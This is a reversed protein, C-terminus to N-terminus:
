RGLEKLIHQSYSMNRIVWLIYDISVVINRTTLPESRYISSASQATRDFNLGILEGKANLVASGSNGASTEANTTFCAVPLSADSELMKRFKASVSDPRHLMDAMTNIDRVRGTSFRLTHNAEYPVARGQMMETKARMYIGYLKQNLRRLPTAERNQKQVRNVYIDVCIRYLSDTALAQTGHEVSGAVLSELRASDTLLSTRYLRDMDVNGRLGEPLYEEPVAKLYLPLLTKMMGCDEAMSISPFFERINRQIEPIEREMDTQRSKRNARDIALLKEFKGAFPIIGAGSGVFQSFAEDMHNFVTLRSYVSDMQDILNSGYKAVRQPDANIWQQLAMDEARKREVLGTNRVGDIEGRSRLYVNMLKGIRVNYGSLVTGETGRSCERLYDIKAKLARARLQTDNNVIKDLAYAPINKRTQGPYGMVMALDGESVSKGAVKLYSQPHFPENMPSYDTPEGDATAYVRLFAFDCSYRPWRWNDDDGGYAGLWMPPCAVIRVDSFTRYRILVYQQGGMLAYAKRTIGYPEKTNDMLKRAREDALRDREDAGMAETGELVKDTVDEISLMQHVQLNFLPAEESRKTTWCGYTMFDNDKNALHQVYSSVCHFNTLVLGDKSVFSASAFPQSVGNDVSLSLAAGAACRKNIQYIDKKSLRIGDKKLLAFVDDGVMQHPMWMGASEPDAPISLEYKSRVRMIFEARRQEVQATQNGYVAKMKGSNLMKYGETLEHELFARADANDLSPVVHMLLQFYFAHVDDAKLARLVGEPLAAINSIGYRTSAVPDDGLDSQQVQADTPLVSISAKRYRCRVDSQSEDIFRRYADDNAFAGYGAKIAYVDYCGLVPPYADTVGDGPQAVYNFRAYDMISPTTGNAHCFSASRLSDTPYASSALFNHELGLCHGVEHAAAYRLIRRLVDDTVNGDCVDKNYAGTHLLLWMKLRQEVASYFQVDAQLIEGSRPDTWHCGMANAFDSEVMYFCNNTIEFPDFGEGAEDYGVVKIFDSKGVKAFAVNWDEIGQRIAEQWLKPFENSVHFTIGDPRSIDFRDIHKGNNSKYGLRKDVPRGPMPQESLMLLSKRVTVHLPLSDTAYAYDVSVELHRADGKSMTIRTQEPLAKGPTLRSSIVDVGRLISVFMDDMKVDLADDDQAVVSMAIRQPGHKADDATMVLTDAVLSFHVLQPNYVRLGSYVKMKGLEVPQTIHEIRAAIVYDRALMSKQFRVTISAGWSPACAILSICLLFLQKMIKNHVIRRNMM